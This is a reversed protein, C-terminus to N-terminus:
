TGRLRTWWNETKASRSDELEALGTDSMAQRVLQNHVDMMLMGDGLTRWALGEFESLEVPNNKEVSREMLWQNLLLRFNNLAVVYNAHEPMDRWTADLSTVMHRHRRLNGMLDVLAPGIAAKGTYSSLLPVIREVQKAVTGMSSALDVTADDTATSKLMRVLDDFGQVSMGSMPDQPLTSKGFIGM